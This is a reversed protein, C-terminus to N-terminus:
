KGEIISGSTTDAGSGTGFYVAFCLFAALMATTLAGATFWRVRSHGAPEPTTDQDMEM